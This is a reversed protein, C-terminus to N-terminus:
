ARSRLATSFGTRHSPRCWGSASTPSGSIHPTPGSSRDRLRACSQRTMVGPLIRPLALSGLALALQGLGALTLLVKM